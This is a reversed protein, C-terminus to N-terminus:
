QGSALVTDVLHGAFSRGLVTKGYPTFGSANDLASLSQRLLGLWEGGTPTREGAALARWSVGLGPAEAALWGEGYGVAAAPEAVALRASAWTWLMGSSRQAYTRPDYALLALPCAALRELMEARAVPGELLTFGRIEQRARELLAREAAPLPERSHLHFLWGPSGLEPGPGQELLAAVVALAEQRGKGHKLDGWHLLVADALEARRQITHGGAGVVAPHVEGAPLGAAVLLPALLTGQQTSPVGIWPRHGAARCAQGLGVLALRCQATAQPDGPPGELTEGPSFMLSVAVAAAPQHQLWRALGLLQFPLATHVVWAAVPDGATASQLQAELRRALHLTGAVDAWHRPDEYGCDRFMPRVGPREELARDAWVEPRWGAEALEGLLAENLDAHHGVQSSWAPDVIVLRRVGLAGGAFVIM